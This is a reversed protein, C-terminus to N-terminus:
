SEFAAAFDRGEQTGYGWQWRAQFLTTELRIIAPPFLTLLMWVTRGIAM